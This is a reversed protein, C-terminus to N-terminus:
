EPILVKRPQFQKLRECVKADVESYDFTNRQGPVDQALEALKERSLFGLQAARVLMVLDRTDRGCIDNWLIYLSVGRINEQDLLLMSGYPGFANEPDIEANRRMLDICCSLAGPNGQAMKVLVETVTDNLDISAM